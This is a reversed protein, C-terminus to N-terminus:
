QLTVPELEVFGRGIESGRADRVVVRVVSPDGIPRPAIRGRWTNGVRQWNVGLPTLDLTTEVTVAESAVDIRGSPDRVDVRADIPDKPWRADMPALEVDAHLERRALIIRTEAGLRPDRLHVIRMLTDEPLRLGSSLRGWHLPASFNPDLGNVSESAVDIGDTDDLTLRAGKPLVIVGDHAVFADAPLKYRLVRQARPASWAGVIGEAGVARVHVWSTPSGLRTAFHTEQTTARQTIRTMAPELAVEIRYEAANPVSGWSLDVPSDGSTVCFGGTDGSWQPTAPIGLTKDPNVGRRMLIGAGDYVPFGQGNSGVVLAGQYIAASTTDGHVRVHLQGRWDTLTGAKTSVLFAHAGKEALPMHVELEGEELWLHHGHTWRNTESPLKGGPMWRAVSAPELTLTVGDPLTMELPQDSAAQITVGVALVDATSTNRWERDADLKVRGAGRVVTAGEAPVSGARADAGALASAAAAVVLVIGIRV